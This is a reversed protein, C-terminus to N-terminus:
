NTTEKPKPTMKKRSKNPSIKRQPKKRQNLYKRKLETQLLSTKKPIDGTQNATLPQNTQLNQYSREKSAEAPL